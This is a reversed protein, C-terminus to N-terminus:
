AVLYRVFLREREEKKVHFRLLTLSLPSSPALSHVFSLADKVFSKRKKGVFKEITSRKRRKQKKM